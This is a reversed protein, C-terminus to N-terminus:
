VRFGEDVASALPSAPAAPTSPMDSPPRSAVYRSPMAELYHCQLWEDVRLSVPRPVSEPRPPCLPVESTLLRGGEEGLVVTPSYVPRTYPGLPRAEKQAFFVQLM